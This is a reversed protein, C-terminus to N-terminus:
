RSYFYRLLRKIEAFKELDSFAKALADDMKPAQKGTKRRKGRDLREMNELTRKLGPDSTCLDDALIHMYGASVANPDGPYSQEAIAQASVPDHFFVRHKRGLVVVPADM